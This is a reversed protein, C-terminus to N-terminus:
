VPIEQSFLPLSAFFVKQPTPYIIITLFQVSNALWSFTEFRVKKCLIADLLSLRM